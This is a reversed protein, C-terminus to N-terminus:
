RPSAPPSGAIQRWQAAKDPDATVGIGREYLDVLVKQAAKSGNLAAKEFLAAAETDDREVGHGAQYARALALQGSAHNQAVAKRLLALGQAVAEPESEQMLMTGYAAQSHAYGREAAKRLWDRAQAKDGAGDRRALMTALGHQGEASGLDAAKRYWDLAQAEDAPGALGVRLGMALSLQAPVYGQEAAKRWLDMAERPKRALGAANMHILGLQHQYAPDGREAGAVAHALDAAARAPDPGGGLTWVYQMQMWAQVPQGDVLTPNFKCRGIGDNAAKDLLLFGSSKVIKSGKVAGDTGILFSLTVTGTQEQRLAEPPYLPKACTAFNPGRKVPTASQAAAGPADGQQAHAGACLMALSAALCILARPRRLHLMFPAPASM